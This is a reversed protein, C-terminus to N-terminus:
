VFQYICVLKRCFMRFFFSVKGTRIGPQVPQLMKLAVSKPEEDSLKQMTAKFVFGFAGRGILNGKVIENAKIVNDPNLDLFVLDPAIQVVSVDGHIPCVLVKKDYTSLVCEEITWLYNWVTTQLHSKDYGNTSNGNLQSTENENPHSEHGNTTNTLGNADQKSQTRAICLPCPVLRTVLFRGESTHVFRTGITPYWDELLIDVHDVCASLLKTVHQINVGTSKHNSSDKGNQERENGLDGLPFFIELVSSRTLDVDAWIGDQKIRFKNQGQRYPSQLCCQSVERLKFILRDAYYLELGTQWLKWHIKNNQLQLLNFVFYLILHESSQFIVFVCSVDETSNYINQAIEGIQTDALVRIMLRSWFGSPFYSILLLRSLQKFTPKFQYASAQYDNKLHTSSESISM